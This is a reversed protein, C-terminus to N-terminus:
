KRKLGRFIFRDMGYEHSSPFVLLIILLVIEILTKNVWLYNGEAPLAYEVSTLPPHSLYYLSFLVIGGIIAYRTFLGLMLGAGVAILGWINLFDVVELVSQNYAMWQFIGSFIGKSDLLYGFSTWNPNMLKVIGEYLCLWGLFVRATTLATLQPDSYKLNM